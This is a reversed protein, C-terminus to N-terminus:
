NNGGKIINNIIKNSLNIIQKNDKAKSKIDIAIKEIEKFRSSLELKKDANKYLDYAAQRTIGLEEGIETFSLDDNVHYEYVLQQNKSLIGGYLDYLISKNFIDDM